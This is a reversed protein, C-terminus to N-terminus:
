LNQIMRTLEDIIRGKISLLILEGSIQILNPFNLFINISGYMFKHHRKAIFNETQLITSLFLLISPTYGLGCRKSANGFIYDLLLHNKGSIIGYFLSVVRTDVYVLSHLLYNFSKNKVSNNREKQKNWHIIINLESLLWHTVFCFCEQYDKLNVVNKKMEIIRAKFLHISMDITNRNGVMIFVAINIDTIPLSFILEQGIQENMQLIFDINCYPRIQTIIKGIIKTM